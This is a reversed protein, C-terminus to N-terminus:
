SRVNPRLKLMLEAEALFEARVVEDTIACEKIACPVGRWEGAYVIGFSGKGIVKGFEIESKEIAWSTMARARGPPSAGEIPLARYEIEEESKTSDSSNSSSKQIDELQTSYDTGATNRPKSSQAESAAGGRKRRSRRRWLFIAVIAIIILGLFLFFLGVGLGVNPSDGGTLATSSSTPSATSPSSSLFPASGQSVPTISDIEPAGISPASTPSSIQPAAPTPQPSRNGFAGFGNWGMMKMSGGNNIIGISLGGGFVSRVSSFSLELDDCNRTLRIPENGEDRNQTLVGWVWADTNSAAISGSMGVAIKNITGSMITMNVAVPFSSSRIDSRGFLPHEFDAYLDGDFFGWGALIGDAASLVFM